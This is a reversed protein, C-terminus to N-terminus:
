RCDRCDRKDHEACGSNEEMKHEWCRTAGPADRVFLPCDKSGCRTKLVVIRVQGGGLKVLKFM